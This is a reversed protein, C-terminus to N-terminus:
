HHVTSNLRLGFSGKGRWRAKLQETEDYCYCGLSLPLPYILGKITHTLIFILTHTCEHTHTCRGELHNWEKFETDEIIEYPINSGRIIRIIVGCM